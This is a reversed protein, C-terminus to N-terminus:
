IRLGSYEITGFRPETNRHNLDAVKAEKGMGLFFFLLFAFKGIFVKVILM